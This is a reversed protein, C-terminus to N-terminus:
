VQMEALVEKLKTEDEEDLIHCIALVGLGLLVVKEAGVERQGVLSFNLLQEVLSLALGTAELSHGVILIREDPRSNGSVNQESMKKYLGHGRHLLHDTVSKYCKPLM